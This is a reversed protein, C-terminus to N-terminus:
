SLAGHVCCTGFLLGLILWKSGHSCLIYASKAEYNEIFIILISVNRLSIKALLMLGQSKKPRRCAPDKYFVQLGVAGQDLFQQFHKKKLNPSSHGQSCCLCALARNNTAM